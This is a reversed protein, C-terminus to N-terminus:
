FSPKPFWPLGMSRCSLMPIPIPWYIVFSTPSRPIFSALTYKTGNTRRSQPLANPSPPLSHFLRLIPLKLLQSVLGPNIYLDLGQSSRHRLKSTLGMTQVTPLLARLLHQCPNNGFTAELWIIQLRAKLRSYPNNFIITPPLLRRHLM